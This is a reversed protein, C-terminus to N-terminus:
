GAASGWIRRPVNLHLYWESEACGRVEMASVAYSAVGERIIDGWM